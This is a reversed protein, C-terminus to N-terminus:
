CLGQPHLCPRGPVGKGYKELYKLITKLEYFTV